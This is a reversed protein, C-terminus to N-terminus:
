LGTGFDFPEPGGPLHAEWDVGFDGVAEQLADFVKQEAAPTMDLSGAFPDSKVGAGQFQRRILDMAKQRNRQCLGWAMAAIKMSLTPGNGNSAHEELDADEGDGEEGGFQELGGQEPPAPAPPPATPRPKVLGAFGPAAQTRGGSKGVAPSAVTGSQPEDTFDGEVDDEVTTPQAAGGRILESEPAPLALRLGQKPAALAIRQLTHIDLSDANRIKLRLTYHTAAKGQFFTQKPERALVLATVGKRLSVLNSVRGFVSRIYDIDSNIGVISHFSSTDIQWYGAVSVDPIMVLLNGMRRCDGDDLLSCPCEPWEYLAGDEKDAQSTPPFLSKERLAIRGNGTCRVRQNQGYLKYSQPFFDEINETPLVVNLGKPKDGYVAVFKAYLRKAADTADAPPPDLVFFDVEKPYEKGSRAQAKVGLGIKGLRPFRRIESLGEITTFRSM